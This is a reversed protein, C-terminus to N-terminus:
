KLSTIYVVLDSVQDSSLSNPKNRPMNSQIFSASLIKGILRPGKGGSGNIEHCVKCQTDYINLGRDVALEVSTQPSAASEPVFTTPSPSSATPQSKVNSQTTNTGCGFLVLSLAIFSM